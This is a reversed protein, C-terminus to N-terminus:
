LEDAEQLLKDAWWTNAEHGNAQQVAKIYNAAARKSVIQRCNAFTETSTSPVPVSVYRRLQTNLASEAAEVMGNIVFIDQDGSQDTYAADLYQKVNDWTAYM